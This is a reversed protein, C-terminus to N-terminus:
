PKRTLDTYLITLFDDVKLWSKGWTPEWKALVKEKQLQELTKGKKIGAEVAAVVDKLTAAFKKVDEVTSVQGHGPIIKAGPPIMPIIKKELNDILGKVSGGSGIDVLPFGYTVFDDGLHVVNSKTFWIISDGDTHGQPLHIARVEEGNLYVSLRDNFTLIPLAKAPAPPTAPREITGAKIAPTGEAMRKRVNEHAVITAESFAENGGTHDGHMHTNIVFRVPKDSITKLAAKIKPALPAFQDDIIAIGDAGVSVGINGGAGQLMYVSGAVKQVKIEVKSFDQQATLLPLLWLVNM